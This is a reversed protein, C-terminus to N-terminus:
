LKVYKDWDTLRKDLTSKVKHRHRSYEFGFSVFSEDAEDAAIVNEAMCHTEANDWVNLHSSGAVFRDWVQLEDCLIALFLLPENELRISKKDNMNHYIVTRCAPIVHDTLVKVPYQYNSFLNHYLEKYITDTISNQSNNARKELERSFWYWISTYQLLMLGSAIAHDVRPNAKENGYGFTAIKLANEVLDAKVTSSILYDFGSDGEGCVPKLGLERMWPTKSLEELVAKPTEAHRTNIQMFKEKFQSWIEKVTDKTANLEDENKVWSFDAFEGEFADRFLKDYYAGFVQFAPLKDEKSTDPLLHATENEVLRSEYFLYGIDHLLSALTWQFVFMKEPQNSDIKSNIAKRLDSVSDYVWIGLLFLYVTHATHDNQKGYDIIRKIELSAVEKRLGLIETYEMTELVKEAVREGYIVRKIDSRASFFDILLKDFNIIRNRLYKAAGNGNRFHLLLRENINM